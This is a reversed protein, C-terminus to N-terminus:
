VETRELKATVGDFGNYTQLWEMAETHKGTTHHMFTVGTATVSLEIRYRM